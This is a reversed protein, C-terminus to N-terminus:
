GQTARGVACPEVPLWDPRAAIPLHVRFETGQGLVSDVEVRGGHKETLRKVLALGIGLGGESRALGRPGQTFLEFVHPLLAPDIGPGTDRVRILAERGEPAVDRVELELAIQGGPDTYKAANELLNGLVQKLRTEDGDVWVEETASVALHHARADMVSRADAGAQRVLVDLRVVEKHLLIKGHAIRAVDLLDDVMRGLQRAQRDLVGVLALNRATQDPVRSMLTVINVIVALPNRLEHSLMSLFETRRRDSERLAAANRGAEQLARNLAELEEIHTPPVPPAAEGLHRAQEALAALPSALRRLLRTAFFIGTLAVALLALV